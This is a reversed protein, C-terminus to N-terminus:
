YNHISTLTPGYLLCFQHKWVTTSSFVGSLSKSQLSILSTFGLPFWGQINMPLISASASAGISQGGSTFDVWQFLDQHQSLNFASSPLLSSVTPHFWQNLPCSSPCVGPSPSLCPPRVHQLGLPQLLTLCKQVVVIYSVYIALVSQIACRVINLIRYYGSTWAPKLFPLPVLSWIALM